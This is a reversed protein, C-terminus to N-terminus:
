IYKKINLIFYNDNTKIGKVLYFLNGILPFLYNKNRGFSPLSDKNFNIKVNEKERDNYLSLYNSDKDTTYYNCFYLKIINQSINNQIINTKLYSTFKENSGNNAKYYFDKNYENILKSSKYLFEEKLKTLFKKLGNLDLALM